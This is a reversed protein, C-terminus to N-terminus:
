RRKWCGQMRVFSGGEREGGEWMHAWYMEAGAGMWMWIDWVPPCPGGACSQTIHPHPYLHSLSGPYDLGQHVWCRGVSTSWWSCSCVIVFWWWCLGPCPDRRLEFSNKTFLYIFLILLYDLLIGNLYSSIQCKLPQQTRGNILSYKCPLILEHMWKRSNVAM